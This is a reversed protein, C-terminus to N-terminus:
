PRRNGSHGRRRLWNRAQLRGHRKNVKDVADLDVAELGLQPEPTTHHRDPRRDIKPPQARSLPRRKGGRLRLDIAVIAAIVATIGLLVILTKVSM